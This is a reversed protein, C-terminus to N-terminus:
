SHRLYEAMKGKESIQLRFYLFYRKASCKSCAWARFVAQWALHCRAEYTPLYDKRSFDVLRSFTGFTSVWGSYNFDVFAMGNWGDYVNLFSM